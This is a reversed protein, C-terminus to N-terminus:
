MDPAELGKLHGATAPDAAYKKRLRALAAANGTCSAAVQERLFKGREADYAEEGAFHECQAIRETLAAVDDPLKAEAPVMTPADVPLAMTPLAAPAAATQPAAPNGAAAPAAEESPAARDKCGALAILLAFALHCRVGCPM